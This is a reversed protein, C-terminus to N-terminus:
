LADLARRREWAVLAEDQAAHMDAILTDIEDRYQSWYALATEVDARSLGLTDAVTGPNRARGKHALWAEAITWVEPGTALAARREGTNTTRFLLGPFEQMVLWERVAAVVVSSKPAGTRRAFAALGRDVSDPFRVNTPAM